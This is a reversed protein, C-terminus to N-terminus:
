EPLGDEISRVSPDDIELFAEGARNGEDLGTSRDVDVLVHRKFTRFWTMVTLPSSRMWTKVMAVLTMAVIEPRVIVFPAAVEAAGHAVGAFQREALHDDGVTVRGFGASADVVIRGSDERDQM